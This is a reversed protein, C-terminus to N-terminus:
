NFFGAIQYVFYVKIKTPRIFKSDIPLARNSGEIFVPVIPVGTKAALFGVGPKPEDLKADPTRRGEPFIGIARGQELERIDRRLGSPDGSQTDIPFVNLATIFRGFLVNKFLGELALFSLVRPCAASLAPPDLYSLHNSAIIVGGKLPINGRGFAQLRFLVKYLVISLSRIILYLM